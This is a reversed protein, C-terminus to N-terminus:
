PSSLLRVQSRLSELSDESSRAEISLSFTYKLKSSEYGEISFAM